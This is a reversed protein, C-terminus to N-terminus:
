RVIDEVVRTGEYIRIFAAEPNMDLMNRATHKAETLLDEKKWIHLAEARGTDENYKFASLSYRSATMTEGRDLLVIVLIVLLWVLDGM